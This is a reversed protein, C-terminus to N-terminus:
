RAVRTRVTDIGALQGHGGDRELQLGTLVQMEGCDQPYIVESLFLEELLQRSTEREEDAAIPRGLADVLAPLLAIPFVYPSGFASGTAREAFSM